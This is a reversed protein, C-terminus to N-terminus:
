EQPATKDYHDARVRNMVPCFDCLYRDKASRYKPLGAAKREAATGPTLMVRKSRFDGCDLTRNHKKWCTLADERFTDKLGYFETGLGDSGGNIVAEQLKTLIAKRHEADHWNKKAIRVLPHATHPNGDPFKHRSVLNELLHDERPTGEHDPIEEISKCDKCMLLRIFEEAM